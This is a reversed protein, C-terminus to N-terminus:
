TMLIFIKYGSNNQIRSDM